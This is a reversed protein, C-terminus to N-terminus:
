KCIEQQEKKEKAPNFVHLIRFSKILVVNFGPFLYVIIQNLRYQSIKVSEIKEEMLLYDWVCLNKCVITIKSYFLSNQILSNICKIFVDM